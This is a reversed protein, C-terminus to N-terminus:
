TVPVLKKDEFPRLTMVVAQQAEPGLDDFGKGCHPCDEFDNIDGEVFKQKTFEKSCHWCYVIEAVCM